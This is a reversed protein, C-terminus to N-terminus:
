SLQAMRIIREDERFRFDDLTGQIKDFVEQADKLSRPRYGMMIPPYGLEQGDAMTLFRDNFDVVTRNPGKPFMRLDLYTVGDDMIM